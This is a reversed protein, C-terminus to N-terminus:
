AHPTPGGVGTCANHRQKFTELEVDIEMCRGRATARNDCCARKREAEACVGMARAHGGSAGESNRWVMSVRRERRRLTDGATSRRASCV